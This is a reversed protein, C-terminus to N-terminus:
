KKQFTFGYINLCYMLQILGTTYEQKFENLVSMPPPTKVLNSSSLQWILPTPIVGEKAALLLFEWTDELHAQFALQVIPILQFPSTLEIGRLPDILKSETLETTTEKISLSALALSTLESPVLSLRFRGISPHSAIILM